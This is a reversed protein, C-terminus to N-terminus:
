MRDLPEVGLLRLTNGLAQRSAAVLAIRSDRERESKLVPVENYFRNFDEALAHAYTALTHVHGTRAVYEVTGPLRSLNRILAVEWETTLDELTYPYPGGGREAKQLLTSARAFSYQLFPASRGEFSLAEEWDFQVTKEAAVRVISYRVAATGVKEAIRDVEDPALDERRKLVEERARTVAEALLDDLYVATGKRTSMASGGPGTIYAYLVFEPRREEGIERLMAELTRAHLRHDVGLVDITRGFRAFKQLHFAVDRTAYLSTGDGRTVIIKASEKPLGYGSADLALAGNDERVAHPAAALREVAKAVSGDRILSSEWVFDDFSIGLRGLSAVMGELIQEALQHHQEPERGAELGQSIQQVQQAADAHTKLYASAFPYPRGLHRDPKVEPTPVRWGSPLQRDIEDPFSGVPQSWIWTIIAAQRGVDDVYYQATVPYGAARLTRALTDGIVANRVRGIHFPGTTNASTHEVCITATKPSGHGFSDGREFVLALTSRGLAASDAHFNLYPGSAEFGSIGPIRPLRAALDTALASAEVGASRAPRQLALAFDAPPQAPSGLQGALWTAELTIGRAQFAQGVAEEVAARLPGWPDTPPAISSRHEM